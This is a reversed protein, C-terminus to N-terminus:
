VITMAAYMCFRIFKRFTIASLNGIFHQLTSFASLFPYSQQVCKRVSASLFWPYLWFLYFIIFLLYYIIFLLDFWILFKGIRDSSSRLHGIM